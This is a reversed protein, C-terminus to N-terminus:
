FHDSKKRRGGYQGKESRSAGKDKPSVFAGSANKPQKKRISPKKLKGELELWDGFAALAQRASHPSLFADRGANLYKSKRRETTEKDPDPWWADNTEWYPKTVHEGTAPKQQLIQRPSTREPLIAHHTSGEVHWQLWGNEEHRGYPNMGPLIRKRPKLIAAKYDERRLSEKIWENFRKSVNSPDGGMNRSKMFAVLLPQRLPQGHDNKESQDVLDFVLKPLHDRKVKENWRRINGSILHAECIIQYAHKVAERHGIGERSLHKAVDILQEPSVELYTTYTGAHRPDGFLPSDEEGAFRFMANKDDPSSMPALMIHNEAFAL